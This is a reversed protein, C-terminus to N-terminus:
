QAMASVGVVLEDVAQDYVDQPIRDIVQFDYCVGLTTMCGHKGIYKDYFGGGYGTRYGAEDFALGPVIMLTDKDPIVRTSPDSAPEQLRFSGSKVSRLESLDKVVHFEMTMNATDTIPYAVCKGLALAREAIEVTDVENGFSSYLLIMTADQFSAMAYIKHWIGGSYELVAEKSLKARRAKMSERIQKKDM